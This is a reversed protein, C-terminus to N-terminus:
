NNIKKAPRNALVNDYSWDFKGRIGSKGSNDFKMDFDEYVSKGALAQAAHYALPHVNIYAM